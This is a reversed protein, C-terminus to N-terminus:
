SLYKKNIYVVGYGLAILLFGVVVLTFAWGLSQAFYESTIKLIYAMLYLAGIILMSRSKVYISLFIAGFSLGPFMIEWFVNRDPFWGGLSLAAGLFGLTGLGYLWGAVRAQNRQAFFYALVGYSLGAVLTLYEYFTEPALTGQLDRVLYTAFSYYFWTTFLVSFAVFLDRRFVWYTAAYTILLIGSIVSQMGSTYVDVGAADFVVFLGTPLLFASIIHFAQALEYFRQERSLFVAVLYAAIGSGLTALVRTMVSLQAWNQWVLVAIGLLVIIGGIYYLVKSVSVHTGAQGSTQKGQEYASLVEQKTVLGKACAEVIQSLIEEKKM